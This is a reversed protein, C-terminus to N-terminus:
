ALLWYLGQYRGCIDACRCGSNLGCSIRIALNEDVGYKDCFAGLVAQSCYLGGGYLEAAKKVRDNM